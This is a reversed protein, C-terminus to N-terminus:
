GYLVNKECFILISSSLERTPQTYINM